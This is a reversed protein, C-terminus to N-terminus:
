CREIRVGGRPGITLRRDPYEGGTEDNDGKRGAFYLLAESDEVCPFGPEYDSRRWFAEKADKISEFRERDDQTPPAYSPGGFWEMYVIM